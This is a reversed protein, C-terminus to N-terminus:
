TALTRALMHLSMSAELMRPEGEFAACLRDVECPACPLWLSGRVLERAHPGSQALLGLQECLACCRALFDALDYAGALGSSLAEENPGLPGLAAGDASGAASLVEVAAPSCLAATACILVLHLADGAAAIWAAVHTLPASSASGCPALDGPSAARACSVLAAAGAMLFECLQLHQELAEAGAATPRVCVASRVIPAVADAARQWLSGGGSADIVGTNAAAAHAAEAAACQESSARSLAAALLDCAVGVQSGILGACLGAVSAAGSLDAVAASAERWCAHCLFLLSCPQVICDLVPEAAHSAVAAEAGSCAVLHLATLAPAAAEIRAAADAASAPASCAAVGARAPLGYCWACLAPTLAAVGEASGSASAFSSLAYNCPGVHAALWHCGASAGASTASSRQLDPAFAHPSHVPTGQMHVAPMAGRPVDTAVQAAAEDAGQGPAQGPATSPGTPAPRTLDARFGPPIPRPEDENGGATAAEPDVTAAVFTLLQAAIDSLSRM